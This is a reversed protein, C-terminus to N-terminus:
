PKQDKGLIRFTTLSSVPVVYIRSDTVRRLIAREKGVDIIQWVERDCIQQEKATQDGALDCFFAKDKALFQVLPYERELAYYGRLYPLAILACLLLVVFPVRFAYRSGSHGHVANAAGVFSVEIYSFAICAVVVFTFMAVGAYDPADHSQFRLALLGLALGMCGAAVLWRLNSSVSRWWMLLGLLITGLALWWYNLLFQLSGTLALPVIGMLFKGGTVLYENPTAEYLARPIGLRDFHAHEVLFGFVSLVVGIAGTSAGLWLLFRPIVQWGPLGTTPSKDDTM